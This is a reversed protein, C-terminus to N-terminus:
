NMRVKVRSSHSSGTITRMELPICVGVVGEIGSMPYSDGGVLQSVSGRTEVAKLRSIPHTM